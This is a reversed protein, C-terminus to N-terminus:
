IKTSTSLMSKCPKGISATQGWIRSISCKNYVRNFHRILVMKVLDQFLRPQCTHLHSPAVTSSTPKSLEEVPICMRTLRQALSWSVSATKIPLFYEIAWDRLCEQNLNKSHFMNRYRVIDQKHVQPPSLMRTIQSRPAQMPIITQQILTSSLLCTGWITQPCKNLDM